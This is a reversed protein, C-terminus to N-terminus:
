RMQRGINQETLLEMKNCMFLHVLEQSRLLAATCGQMCSRSFQLGSIQEYFSDNQNVVSPQLHTLYNMM